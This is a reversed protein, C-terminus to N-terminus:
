SPTATSGTVTVTAFASTGESVTVGVVRATASFPPTAVYAITSSAPGAPSTVTVGRAFAASPVELVLATRTPGADSVKVAVSQNVGRVTVTVPTSSLLVTARVALTM